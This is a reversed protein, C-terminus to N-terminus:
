HERTAPCPLELGAAYIVQPQAFRVTVFTLDASPEFRVHINDVLRAAPMEATPTNMLVQARWDRIALPQDPSVIVDVRPRGRGLVGACLRVSVADPRHAIVVDLVACAGNRTILRDGATVSEIAIDGRLTSVLTGAALGVAENTQAVASRDATKGFPTEAM